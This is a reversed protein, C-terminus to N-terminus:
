NVPEIMIGLTRCHKIFEMINEANWERSVVVREGNLDIQDAEGVHFREKFKDDDRFRDVVCRGHKSFQSETKTQLKDPFVDKLKEYTIGPNKLVYNRVVFLVTRGKGDTLITTKYKTLDPM